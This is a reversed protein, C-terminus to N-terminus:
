TLTGVKHFGLDRSAREKVQQTSDKFSGPTKM